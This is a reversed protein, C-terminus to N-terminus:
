LTAYAAAILAKPRVDGILDRGQRNMVYAGALGREPDAFACSGGWGAHGFTEQGPGWISLGENRLVGAGWAVEYPLVLDRGRIRARAMEAIAAPSLIPVGDLWGDGALAGMLRALSLATAYGNTSPIPASRIVLRAAGGPSSWPALFAWRIVDTVQGFDPMAPPRQLEAARGIEAEPIGIWLDLDLPEAIDERLADAMMRGDARRFIEGVLYGYTVPHYGSASGPPWLPAMAALRACVGDWDYWASPEMPEPFGALGAQHSMLQEVTITAKGAQGFEPWVEAVPQGYALRGQDVLRAMLLAALAKTTSFLPTLTEPGFPRTRARDAHGGWIDLVVDGEHVLTFRAGIELGEAFHRAFVERVPAFRPHAEGHIEIDAM